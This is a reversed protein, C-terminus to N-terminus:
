LLNHSFCSLYVCRLWCHPEPEPGSPNTNGGNVHQHQGGFIVGTKLRSSVVHIGTEFLNWPVWRKSGLLWESQDVPLSFIACVLKSWMRNHKTQKNTKSSDESTAFPRFQFENAHCVWRWAASSMSGLSCNHASTM